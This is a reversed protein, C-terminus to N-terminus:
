RSSACRDLFAVVTEWAERSEELWPLALLFDHQMHCGVCVEADVGVDRAKEAVRLTDDLLVEQDGVILLLPPFGRLDARVPSIRPDAVDAKGAYQRGWEKIHRRSLWVDRSENRTASAGTCALDTWPSFVVAAAPLVETRDRLAALLSLALGGGASDGAVVISGEPHMASVHAWAVLADELAAPFPHEPALRYDPVYVTANCRFSLRRARDRYSAPSGFLYAGGHLYLVARRPTPVARVSEIWLQGAYHDSFVLNPYKETLSARTVAALREFRKRMTLAPTAPRYLSTAIGYAKVSLWTKWPATVRQTQM